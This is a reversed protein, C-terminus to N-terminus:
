FRKLLRRYEVEIGEIAHTELGAEQFGHALYFRHARANERYVLLWTSEAGRARMLDLGAAMLAKGLGAQVVEPEVYLKQTQWVNGPEAKLKLFGQLAGDREAVFFTNGPKALSSALKAVSYTRELYRGLVDEPFLHGFAWVFSRSGVAAIAAADAPLAPRILTPM